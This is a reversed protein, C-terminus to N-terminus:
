DCLSSYDISALDATRTVHTLEGGAGIFMIHFIVFGDTDLGCLWHQDEIRSVLLGDLDRRALERRVRGQRDRFEEESFNIYPKPMHESGNQQVEPTRRSSRKRASRRVPYGRMTSAPRSAATSSM